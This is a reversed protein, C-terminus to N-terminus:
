GLMNRTASSCRRLHFPPSKIMATTSARFLTGSPWDASLDSNNRTLLRVYVDPPQSLQRLNFLPLSYLKLRSATVTLHFVFRTDSLSFCPWVNMGSVQNSIQTMPPIVVYGQYTSSSLANTLFTLAPLMHLWRHCPSLIVRSAQWGRPTSLQQFRHTNESPISSLLLYCPRADYISNSV